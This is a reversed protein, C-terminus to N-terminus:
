SGVDTENIIRKAPFGFFEPFHFQLIVPIAIAIMIVIGVIIFLATKWPQSKEESAKTSSEDVLALGIFPESM